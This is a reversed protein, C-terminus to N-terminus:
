RPCISPCSWMIIPLPATKNPISLRWCLPPLTAPIIRVLKDVEDLLFLPNNSGASKVNQIIRGPMAGIYTRRHGRIEAEDRVGGLSMRVFNRDLARAISRALSTKGVGPPGVLCLIPGKLSNTLQCSALYELIREKPKELGYHDAELVKEAHVIDLNEATTIKWPLKILTDLYNAIVNAEAMMAPMKELRKLETEIRERVFDPLDAAEAKKRYEAAEESREENEGLEERIAKLQERMYYEKQSKEVQARVKASIRKEIDIIEIEKDLIAIVKEIRDAVNLNELLEQRNTQSMNLQAAVIDSLQDAEELSDVNIIVESPIRKSHEAYEEFCHHLMRSLAEIELPPRGMDEQLPAIEAMICPQEQLTGVLRARYKGEVLLRVTGGPLKLMQRIQAVTGIKYIDELEPDDTAPNKQMALFILGEEDAAAEEIASISRDRGADLHAVVHPFVLLGRLPMMPMIQLQTAKAPSQRQFTKRSISENELM